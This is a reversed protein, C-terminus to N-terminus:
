LKINLKPTSISIRVINMYNLSLKVYIDSTFINELPITYTFMTSGKKLDLVYTRSYNGAILTLTFDKLVERGNYTVNLLINVSNINLKSNVSFRLSSLDIYLNYFIYSCVTLTAILLLLSCVKLTTSIM